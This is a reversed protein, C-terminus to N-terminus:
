GTSKPLSELVVTAANRLAIAKEEIWLQYNPEKGQISNLEPVLAHGGDHETPQPKITLELHELTATAVSALGLQRSTFPCTSATEVSSIWARSISLGDTDGPKEEDQWPRPRFVRQPLPRKTKSSHWWDSPFRRYILPPDGHTSNHTETM